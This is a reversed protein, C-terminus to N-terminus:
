CYYQDGHPQVASHEWPRHMTRRLDQADGEAGSALTESAAPNLSTCPNYSALTVGPSNLLRCKPKGNRFALHRRMLEARTTGVITM